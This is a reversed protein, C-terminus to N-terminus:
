LGAVLRHTELAMAADEGVRGGADAVRRLADVAELDPLLRAALDLLLPRHIGAWVTGRADDDAREIEHLLRVMRTRGGRVGLVDAVVADAEARRARAERQWGEAEASCAQEVLTRYRELWVDVDVEASPEV